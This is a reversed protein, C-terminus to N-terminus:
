FTTQTSTHAATGRESQRAGNELQAMEYTDLLMTFFVRHVRETGCHVAANPKIPVREM